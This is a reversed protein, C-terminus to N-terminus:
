NVYSILPFLFYSVVTVIMPVGTLAAAQRVAVLTGNGTLECYM